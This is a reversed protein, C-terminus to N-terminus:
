YGMPKLEKMELWYFIEGGGRENKIIENTHTRDNGAVLFKVAKRENKIIRNTQTRCNGAM